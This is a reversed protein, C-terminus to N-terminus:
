KIEKKCIIIENITTNLLISLALFNDIKPLSAGNEWHYISQVASFKFYDQLETISYGCDKRLERIHAGTARVDIVPYRPFKKGVM